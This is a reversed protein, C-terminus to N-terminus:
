NFYYTLISLCVWPRSSSSHCLFRQSRHLIITNTGRLLDVSQRSTMGQQDKRVLEGGFTPVVGSKLNSLGACARAAIAMPLSTSFGFLLASFVAGMSSILITPRRGICNSVKAWQSAGVFEGFTLVSVMIGVYVAINDGSSDPGSLSKVM